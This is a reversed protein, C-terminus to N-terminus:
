FIGLLLVWFLIFRDRLRRRLKHVHLLLYLRGAIGGDIAKCITVSRDGCLQLLCRIQGKYWGSKIQNFRKTWASLGSNAGFENSSHQRYLLTAQNDIHWTLGNCRVIAYILWDHLDIEQILDRNSRIVQQVSLAADRNLVYSCGPGASEFYYDWKKQRYSKKILVTKNSNEWFARVDSSYGEVGNSKVVHAARSLKNDLWIDDQDSLAVYDYSSFDVDYILRFFNRSASGYRMGCPLLSINSHERCLDKVISETKDTSLDISIFLDVEVGAQRLISQVQENIWTEGNYAALLVAYRPPEIFNTRRISLSLSM